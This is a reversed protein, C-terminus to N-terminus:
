QDVELLEPHAFCCQDEIWKPLAGAAIIEEIRGCSASIVHLRDGRTALTSFSYPMPPETKFREIYISCLNQDDVKPCVALCDRGDWVKCCKAKCIRSCYDPYEIKNKANSNTPTSSPKPEQKSM